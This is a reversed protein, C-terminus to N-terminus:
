STLLEFGAQGVGQFGMEVLICFKALRPPTCRYDWSSLLSLCFQKFRPPPPQLSSLEHWQVGARTGSCPETEFLVFCTGCEYGERLELIDLPQVSALAVRQGCNSLIGTLHFNCHASVAGSCELRPLLALSGDRSFIFILRTYHHMGPIGAARSASAPSDRSGQLCLSCQALTAGSCELGPLLLLVGDLIFM